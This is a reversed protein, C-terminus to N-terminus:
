SGLYPLLRPRRGLIWTVHQGLVQRVEARPPAPWPRRWAEDPGALARLLELAAQSLPVAQPAKGRCRGCLAGGVAPSFGLRGGQLVAGCAACVDLAPVYGLERLLVLEFRAVRPGVAPAAEKGLESLTALAEEFLVPHPDYEQTLDGLLEALYYAGYLAALDQGLRPFRRVVQAETLLDLSGSSKRFFLISCVTLLDLANEFSSKLRRGGKALARVKGFERTWLTAIRSSESWDTTRLVLALAKEAAM